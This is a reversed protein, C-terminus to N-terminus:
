RRRRTNLYENHSVRPTVIDGVKEGDMNVAVGNLAEAMKQGMRDYDIPQSANWKNEASGSVPSMVADALGELGGISRLLNAEEKTLVWEGEDLLAPFRDSPVYDMGVKLRPIKPINFGKGGVGPVWSPMKIKNVRSIFGNIGDIIWNLPAKFITGFGSVINSFINKINEWAAKWNGTLVNKIFDVLNTLIATINGIVSGVDGLIGNLVSEFVPLLISALANVLPMIAVNILEVFADVLPGLGQVILDLIPALFAAVQELLPALVNSLLPLVAEALQSLLPILAEGIPIIATEVNRKLQEFQAGLDDYKIDNLNEMEEGTAYYGDQIDALATVADAGLDEWMTGFLNVGATNQALPDEMADLAEITQQFAEKASDGGAAFKAAMEDADLGLAEFGQRTTDSGDVVRISMEKVADGIKDLNFAGSDAGAQFIKFMDDAYLGMKQFHVSYENISDILEGSYDLGNQAGKAILDFAYQGDIGFQEMMTDAARVSETVDYGLTDRLAIASETFSQLASPDWSDVVPGIQQRIQSLADGIDAFSDGYGNNYIDELVDRYKETQESTIGTSAQLQNMAADLDNAAGVALVGVGVAAAGAGIAAVQAGSLGKTLNGVEGVLPISSDAASTFTDTLTDKLNGFFSASDEGSKKWSSTVTDAASKASEVVKGSESRISSTKKEEIKVTDDASQKVAKEVKRNAQELDSEVKSDDARIEYVVEGKKSDAM